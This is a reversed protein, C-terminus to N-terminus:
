CTIHICEEKNNEIYVLSIFHVAKLYPRLPCSMWWALMFGQTYFREFGLLGWTSWKFDRYLGHYFCKQWGTSRHSTPPLYVLSFAWLGALKAYCGVSEKLCTSTLVQVCVCMCVRACVCLCVYMPVQKDLTVCLRAYGYCM